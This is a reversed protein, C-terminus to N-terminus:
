GDIPLIDTQASPWIPSTQSALWLGLLDGYVIKSKTKSARSKQDTAWLERSTISQSSKEAPGPVRSHATAAKIDAICLRREEGSDLSLSPRSSQPPTKDFDGTDAPTNEFPEYVHPHGLLVPFM